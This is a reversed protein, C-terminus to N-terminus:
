IHLFVEAKTLTLRKIRHFPVFQKVAEKTKEGRRHVFEVVIAVHDTGVSMIKARYFGQILQYGTPAEELSEPNVMTVVKGILSTLVEALDAPAKAAPKPAANEDAM